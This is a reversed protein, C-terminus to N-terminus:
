QIEEGLFQTERLITQIADRTFEARIIQKAHNERTETDAFLDTVSENKRKTYPPSNEKAVAKGRNQLRRM